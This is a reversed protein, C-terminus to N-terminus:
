TEKRYGRMPMDIKFTSKILYRVKKISEVTPKIILVSKNVSKQNKSTKNLLKIDWM